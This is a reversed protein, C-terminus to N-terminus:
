EGPKKEKEERRKAMITWFLENAATKSKHLIAENNEEILEIIIAPAISDFNKLKKIDAIHKEIIEATDAISNFLRCLTSFIDNEKM